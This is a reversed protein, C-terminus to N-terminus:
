LFVMLGSFDFTSSHPRVLGAASAGNLGSTVNWGQWANNSSSSFLGRWRLNVYQRQIDNYLGDGANLKLEGNTINPAGREITWKNGISNLSFDDFFQFVQNGDSVAGATANGYYMYVTAGSTPITPLKAWVDVSAATSDEIWYPLLNGNVDTFRLDNLSSQIKGATIDASLDKNDLIKIQFDTLTSGSANTITIAKRYLWSDNWWAASAKPAFFIDAIPLLVMLIILVSSVVRRPLTAFSWKTFQKLKRFCLKIALVPHKLFYLIFNQIKFKWNGFLKQINRISLARFFTKTKGGADNRSANRAPALAYERTAIWSMALNQIAASKRTGFDERHRSRANSKSLLAERTQKPHRVCWLISKFFIKFDWKWFRLSKFIRVICDTREKRRSGQLARRQSSTIMRPLGSDQKAVGYGQRLSLKAIGYGQRLHTKQKLFQIAEDFVSPDISDNKSTHPKKEKRTGFVCDRM